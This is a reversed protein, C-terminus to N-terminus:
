IYNGESIENGKHAAREKVQTVGSDKENRQKGRWHVNLEKKILLKGNISFKSM